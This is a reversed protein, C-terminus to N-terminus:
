VVPNGPDLGLSTRGYIEANTDYDITAHHCATNIDRYLSQLRSDDYIAHAGSAAFVRETARRALEVVYAAHFKLEAREDITLREGSTMVRDCRDAAELLLLEATALEARAEAIRLQGGVSLRKASATYVDIRGRTREIHLRVAEKAIGLVAAALQTALSVALPLRNLHTAHHEGHPSTGDLLLQSSLARHAPVFVNDAVLDKSGTGRLGLTFWTDDVVVDAKPVIVHVLEIGDPVDDRVAGILLWDGHDVGSAFQWRGDLRFGGHAARLRGQTALTGPIRTDPGSAWVEDQCAAPFSAALYAHANIVMQIWGAASDAAAICMVTEVQARLGAEYGGYTRPTLIRWLGAEAMAHVSAPCVARAAESAAANAAVTPTIAAAAALLDTPSPIETITM